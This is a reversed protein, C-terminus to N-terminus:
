WTTVRSGQLGDYGGRQFEETGLVEYVPVQFRLYTLVCYGGPTM